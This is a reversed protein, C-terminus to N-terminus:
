IANQFPCLGFDNMHFGMCVWVSKSVGCKASEIAAFGPVEQDIVNEAM